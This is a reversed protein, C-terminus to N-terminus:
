PNVPLYLMYFYFFFLNVSKGTEQPMAPLRNTDTGAAAHNHSILAVHQNHPPRRISM